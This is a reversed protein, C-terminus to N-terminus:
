RGGDHIEPSMWKQLFAQVRGYSDASAAYDYQLVHGFTLRRGPQSANDFAHYVGPYVHVEVPQDPKAHSALLQCSLAPSGWDDLDGALVLLPVTGHMEPQGCSGYYDVAARLLGPYELEYQSETARAATGGGHSQGLVGIREGDIEPRTRLYLAASIVDAVRDRPTALRQTQPACVASVGRPAFSDPVLVAYGWRRLRDAWVEQNPSVGSCGHLLIVAPFPGPGHPLALKAPIPKDPIRSGGVPLDQYAISESAPGACAALLLTVLM